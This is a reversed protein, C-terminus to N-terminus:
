KERDIWGPVKYGNTGITGRDTKNKKKLIIGKLALSRTYRDISRSDIGTYAALKKITVVTWGDETPVENLVILYLLLMKEGPMLRLPILFNLADKLDIM